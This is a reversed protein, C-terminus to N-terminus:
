IHRVINQKGHLVRYLLIIKEKEKIRYFVVYNLIVMKRYTPNSEYVEHLRPNIKILEVHKKWEEMFKQPTSPYFQELYNKIEKVDEKAFVSYQIKYKM